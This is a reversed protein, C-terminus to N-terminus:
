PKIARRFGPGFRSYPTPMSGDIGPNILAGPSNVFPCGDAHAAGVTLANIAEAPSLLKRNRESLQVARLVEGQLDVASLGRLAQRDVTLEIDQPYNGASVVFLLNYKHALWDLLRATASLYRNFPQSPDGISLNIVRVEPAAAPSAGEGELIRRVARYLLDVFLVDPPVSEGPNHWNRPDPKMVPRVYVPRNLPSEDTDLEGRVILSAMATGHVRSTTPCDGAWGDPDDVVLRGVLAEHNEIPLGDLLAVTPSAQAAPEAPLDTAITERVMEEPSPVISQGTPRFFMVQEALVMRTEQMQVIPEITARPAEVLVAHYAIEPILCQSVCRGRENEVTERFADYTANQLETTERCWLEAEFRLREQGNELDERFAELVGTERLRDEHSWRRVDRLRRFVEKWKNLGHEFKEDPNRRFRRFLSILQDIAHQNSMILYLRGSMLEEDEGEIYFDDDQPIEDEWDALWSMGPIRKVAGIFEDVSGVTEFVIVQEPDAGAPANQVRAANQHIAEQLERFKPMLRVGQRRTSPLHPTKPPGGGLKAKKATAPTPFILLPNEPM